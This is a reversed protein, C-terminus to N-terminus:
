PSLPQQANDAEEVSLVLNCPKDILGINRSIMLSLDAKRSRHRRVLLADYGSKMCSLSSSPFVSSEQVGSFSLFLFLRHRETGAIGMTFGIDSEHLALADNTGDNTVAVVESMGRLHTVLKLKDTPSSRAVVQIRLALERKKADLKACYDWSSFLDEGSSFLDEGRQLCRLILTEMENQHRNRSLSFSLRSLDNCRQHPLDATTSSRHSVNTSTVADKTSINTSIVVDKTSVILIPKIAAINILNHYSGIFGLRRLAAIMASSRWRWCNDVGAGIKRCRVVGKDM